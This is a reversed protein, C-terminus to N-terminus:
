GRGAGRRRARAPASGKGTEHQQDYGVDEEREHSEPHAAQALSVVQGRAHSLEERLTIPRERQQHEERDHERRRQAESEHDEHRRRQPEPETGRAEARCELEGGAQMLPRHQVHEQQPEITATILSESRALTCSPAAIYANQASITVRAALLAANSGSSAQSASPARGHQGRRLQGGQLGPEGGAMVAPQERLPALRRSSALIVARAAARCQMAALRLAHAPGPGQQDGAEQHVDRGIHQRHHSDDVGAAALRVRDQGTDLREEVRPLRRHGHQHQERADGHGHDLQEPQRPHRKGHSAARAPAGRSRM